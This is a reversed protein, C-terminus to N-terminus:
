HRWSCWCGSSTTGRCSWGATESRRYPVRPFWEKMYTQYTEKAQFLFFHVEERPPAIGVKTRLDSTLQTLEDLLPQQPALPFDAHCRFQGADREDPWRNEAVAAVSPLLLTLACALWYCRPRFLRGAM